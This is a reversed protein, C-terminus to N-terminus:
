AIATPNEFYATVSEDDNLSYNEKFATLQTQFVAKSDDDIRGDGSYYGFHNLRSRMGLETSVDDIEGVKLGMKMKLSPRSPYPAYELLAFKADKPLKHEVYGDSDSKEGIIELLPEVAKVRESKYFFLDYPIDALPNSKRDMLYISFYGKPKKLVFTTKKNLDAKQKTGTLAPIFVKDDPCIMSPNKRLKRFAENEPADYITQWNALGFKQAISILCEGQVVKHIM